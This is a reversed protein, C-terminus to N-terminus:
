IENWESVSWGGSPGSDFNMDMLGTEYNVTTGGDMVITEATLQKATGGGTLRLTGKQSNLIVSGAGGSITIAPNGGCAGVPCTSTTIVLIYNGSVGNGVFNGGGTAIVRGDTVIIGSKAGYSSALRVTAGGDVTVNGTVWLTGAVTLSGGATVRLDGVIKGPGLTVHQNPWPGVTVNGSTVTGSLAEEKWAEINGDSVPFPQQVPDPRSINCNKSTYSSGQCYMTGTVNAGSVNHAWADGGISIRNNQHGSIRGTQGGVYIDFYADLSSPSTNTWSSSCCTGTKAVGNAYTGPSAAWMYYSGWTNQTDLVLWYTTGPTLTPTSTFPVSLYNYSTTVQSAGLTASALTTNGPRGSVNNTIKVTIDNMWVDAYKRLYLRVSTVPTTTSVTFSQAADQPKQDNYVLQGGFLISNPPVGAAGNSQNASPSSANAVTVSGTVSAGGYGIVDGNSYINGNVLAGGYLEFGGQGTQLGYHFSVGVSESVSVRLNREALGHQGNVQVSRGGFETAVAVTASAEGLELTEHSPVDMGKKMRYLIDGAASEAVIFARKSALIEGAARNGSILPAAMAYVIFSSVAVFILTNLIM